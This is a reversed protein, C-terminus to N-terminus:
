HGSVRQVIPCGPDPASFSGTVHRAVVHCGGRCIQLWRCSACPEPAERIWDHYHRMSSGRGLDKWSLSSSETDFSCGGLRGRPDVSVLWSGAVCGALGMRSLLAPAFGAACVMPTFSCDMRVRVRHRRCLAMVRPFLDSAQRPTLDMRDFVAAGRGAPKFRLLELDRVGLRHLMEFLPELEDANTRAVVCNVGVRRHFAKLIKLSMLGSEFGDHGRVGAYSTGVGDMSLHIREFVSLRKAAGATLHRGSTSLNPTMGLARAKKALAILVDWSLSEGGGLAVHYVGLSALKELVRGWTETDLEEGNPHSDIYCGQCGMDCRNSLTLHAEYPAGPDPGAAKEPSGLWRHDVLVLMEPKRFAITGGFPEPRVIKGSGPVPQVEVLSGM